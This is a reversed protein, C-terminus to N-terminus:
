QDNLIEVLKVQKNEMINNAVIEIENSINKSSDLEFFSNPSNLYKWFLDDYKIYGVYKAEVGFYKIIISKISSGMKIQENNRVQNLVISIEINPLEEEIIHSIENSIGKLYTIFDRLNNINHSQRYKWVNKAIDKLEHKRLIVSIKRFIVRKLFYYLNEIATIEPAIIVIMKKAILFTDIINLQSGAGLDIIIFNSNIGKIHRYLKLKQSYKISNPNISRINGPILKLNPIKTKVIINNLPVGKEFFSTLSNQPRKIRLFSHLNAGGLDADILMTQLGKQALCIGLGTSLFSKGTGGKGGGIAWIESNM